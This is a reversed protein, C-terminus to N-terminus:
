VVRNREEGRLFASLNLSAESLLRRRSELSAWAIHPTIRVRPAHLLPHKPPPPEQTLVDVYAGGITGAHLAEALASEEVVGGRAANILLASPKMLKLEKGGILGETEPTLPCHLSLVDVTRLFEEFSCRNEAAPRNPLQAILTKMGFADAISKVEAGITGYGVIGLTMGAIDQTTSHSRCFYPGKLWEELFDPSSHEEIKSFFHLLAAFVYQAVSTTSYGPVNTVAIGRSRASELAVNNVGTATIGVYRLEPLQELVASTLLTKNVIAAEAEALRSITEDEATYPYRELSGLQEMDAWSLGDFDTVYTDTAVIRM